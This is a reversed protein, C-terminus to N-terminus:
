TWLVAKLSARFAGVVRKMGLLFRVSRWPSMLMASGMGWGSMRGDPRLARNFDPLDTQAEDSVVRLAAAPLGRGACVTLIEYTEMDVALARYQKGLRAKDGANTVIQSVTVGAGLVGPLGSARLNDMMLASIKDDCNISANEECDPPKKRSNSWAPNFRAHHCLNFVVADGIKLGPDLAGPTTSSAM